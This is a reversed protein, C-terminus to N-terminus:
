STHKEERLKVRLRRTLILSRLEAVEKQDHIIRVDDRKRRLESKSLGLLVRWNGDLVYMANGVIPCELVAIQAADFCFLAYDKFEGVGRRVEDPCMYYVTYLRDIDCTVEKSNLREFHQVIKLFSDRVIKSISNVDQFFESRDFPVNSIPIDSIESKLLHYPPTSGCHACQSKPLGSHECIDSLRRQTDPAM